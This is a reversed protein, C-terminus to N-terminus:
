VVPNNLEKACYNLVKSGEMNAVEMRIAMVTGNPVSNIYTSVSAYTGFGDYDAHWPFYDWGSGSPTGLRIAPHHGDSQEDYVELTIGTVSGTLHWGTINVSGSAGTTFCSAYATAADAPAVGLTMFLAAGAALVGFKTRNRM